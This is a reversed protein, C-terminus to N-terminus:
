AKMLNHLPVQKNSQRIRLQSLWNKADAVEPIGFDANKWLDLFKKYHEIAKGKWCKEEYIKRLEEIIEYRGAFTSGMTLEEKPTELTKTHSVSIENNTPGTGRVPRSLDLKTGCKGCYVTDVPNEFHCKPCKIVM